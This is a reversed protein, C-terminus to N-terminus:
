NLKNGRLFESTSMRKKGETQLEEINIYGDKTAFKLYTKNDTILKGPIENHSAIEKEAKFVKLIKNNLITYAGPYPSLGRIFNRINESSNNWNILCNEKFILANLSSWFCSEFIIADTNIQRIETM